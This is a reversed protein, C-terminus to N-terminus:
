AAYNVPRSKVKAKKRFLVSEIRATDEGASDLGHAAPRSFKTQQVAKVPLNVAFSRQDRFDDTLDIVGKESQTLTPDHKNASAGPPATTSKAPAMEPSVLGPDSDRKRKGTASNTVRPLRAVTVTPRYPSIIPQDFFDISQRMQKPASFEPVVTKPLLGLEPTKNVELKFREPSKAAASSKIASEKSIHEATRYSGPIPNAASPTHHGALPISWKGNGNDLRKPTAPMIPSTSDRTNKQGTPVDLRRATVPRPPPIRLGGISRPQGSLSVSTVAQGSTITSMPKPKYLSSSPLAVRGSAHITALRSRQTDAKAKAILGAAKGGGSDSRKTQSWPPHSYTSTTGPKPGLGRWPIGRPQKAGKPLVVKDVMVVRKAQRESEIQQYREALKKGANAKREEAEEM